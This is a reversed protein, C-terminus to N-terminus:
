ALACPLWTPQIQHGNTMQSSNPVTQGWGTQHFTFIWQTTASFVVYSQWRQLYNFLMKCNLTVIFTYYAHLIRIWFEWVNPFFNWFIEPHLIEKVRSHCFCLFGLALGVSRRVTERYVAICSRTNSIIEDCSTTIFYRFSKQTLTLTYAIVTNECGTIPEFFCQKQKMYLAYSKKFFTQNIQWLFYAPM